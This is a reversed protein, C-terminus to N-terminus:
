LRLGHRISPVGGQQLGEQPGGRLIHISLMSRHRQHGSQRKRDGDGYAHSVPVSHASVGIMLDHMCARLYVFISWCRHILSRSNATVGCTMMDLISQVLAMKKVSNGVVLTPNSAVVSMM